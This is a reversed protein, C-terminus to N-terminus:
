NGFILFRLCDGQNSFGRPFNFRSWGGNKCQEKNAPPGTQPDCADGIGDLDFDAQNSNSLLPCNDTEDAAGDNDDDSDCANGAGDGDTDLQDPNPTADCNDLEDVVGDADTDLLFEFAGIDVTGAGVRPFGTGRQDATLPSNNEDVALSNSGGDIALSGTVLAHTLTPGGNNALTSDIVAGIALVGCGNDGVINGDVGDLSYCTTPNPDPHLSTILNNNVATFGINFNNENGVFGGAILVRNDGVISNNLTFTGTGHFAPQFQAARNKVITSNVVSLTGGALTAASGRFARNGSITSNIIRTTGGDSNLVGGGDSGGDNGSITSDRIVATGSRNSIGGGGTAVTTFVVTNGSITTRHVFLTGSNQIGGGFVGGQNGFVVANSVTLSGRNVIGSGSTQPTPTQVAGSIAIGDILATVGADVQIVFHSTGNVTATLQSPGPGLISLNKDIILGGSTIAISCPCGMLAFDITDGSSASAIAQRLSGSGTDNTNTVTITAGRAVAMGTLLILALFLSHRLLPALTMQISKRRM